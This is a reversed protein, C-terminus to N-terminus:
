IRFALDDVMLLAGGWFAILADPAAGGWGLYRFAAWTATGVIGVGLLRKLQRPM